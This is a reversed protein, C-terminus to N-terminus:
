ASSAQAAVWDLPAAPPVTAGVSRVLIADHNKNSQRAVALNLGAFRPFQVLHLEVPLYRFHRSPQLLIQPPLTM